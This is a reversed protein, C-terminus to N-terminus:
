RLGIDNEAVPADNLGTVTIALVATDTQSGSTVTYNFYDIATDGFRFCRSCKTLWMRIVEM